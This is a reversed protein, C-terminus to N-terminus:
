IRLVYRSFPLNCLMDISWPKEAIIFDYLQSSICVYLSRRTAESTRTNLSAIVDLQRTPENHKYQLGIAACSLHTARRHNSGKYSNNHSFM